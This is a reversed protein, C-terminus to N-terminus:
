DFSRGTVTALERLLADTPQGRVPLKRDREFKEIAKRTAEGFVGTPPVPGYGFDNLARQMAVIRRTPISGTTEAQRSAVPKAKTRQLAKLLADNPEGTTKLKADRQFARIAAVMRPGSLGDVAGEYYGLRSLERQIDAILPQPQKKAPAAPPAAAPKATPAVAVPPAGTLSGTTMKPPAPPRPEELRPMLPAPHPGAQLVVANLVIAGVLAAAVCAGLTDAPRRLMIRGVPRLPSLWDTRRDITQVPTRDRM